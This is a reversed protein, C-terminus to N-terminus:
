HISRSVTAGTEGDDATMQRDTQRDTQRDLQTVLRHLSILTARAAQKQM